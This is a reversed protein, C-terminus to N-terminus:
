HVTSSFEIEAQQTVWVFLKCPLIIFYEDQWASIGARHWGTTGHLCHALFVILKRNYDTDPWQHAGYM